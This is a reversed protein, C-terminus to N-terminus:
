NTYSPVPDSGIAVSQYVVRTTDFIHFIGPKFTKFLSKKFYDIKTYSVKNLEEIFNKCDGFYDKFESSHFFNEKNIFCITSVNIMYEEPLKDVQYVICKIKYMLGVEVGWEKASYIQYLEIKQRCTPCGSRNGKEVIWTNICFTCFIHDCTSLRTNYKSNKRTDELCIGCTNMEPPKHVGCLGNEDSTTKKCRRGSVCTATCRVM